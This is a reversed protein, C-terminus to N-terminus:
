QGQKDNRRQVDREEDVAYEHRLRANPAAEVPHPRRPGSLRVIAGIRGTWQGTQPGNKGPGRGDEVMFGKWTGKSADGTKGDEVRFSLRMGWSSERKQSMTMM